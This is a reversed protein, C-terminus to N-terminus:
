PRHTGEQRHIQRVKKGEKYLAITVECWDCAQMAASEFVGQVHEALPTLRQEVLHVPVGFAPKKRKYVGKPM